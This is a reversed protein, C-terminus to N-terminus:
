ANRSAPPAFGFSTDGPSAYPGFGYMPWRLLSFMPARSAQRMYTAPTVLRSMERAIPMLSDRIEISSDDVALRWYQKSNVCQRLRRHGQMGNNLLSLFSPIRDLSRQRLASRRKAAIGSSCRSILRHSFRFLGFPFYFFLYYFCPRRHEPNSRVSDASNNKRKGPVCPM